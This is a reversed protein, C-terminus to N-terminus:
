NYENIYLSVSDLLKNCRTVEDKAPSKGFVDVDHICTFINEHVFYINM